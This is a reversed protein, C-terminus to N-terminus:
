ASPLTLGHAIDLASVNAVAAAMGDPCLHGYRETVVQTAHGMLGAVTYLPTGAQVLWSAYTHRLTHAVVMQRRDGIGQNLALFDVARNFTESMQTRRKGSRGPFVLKGPELEVEALAEAATRTLVAHRSLGGKPNRVTLRHAGLNVDQGELAFIEGCRLGTHLSLICIRWTTRSRRLIEALLAHAEAQTLWRLRANDPRPRDVATVPNFGDFLRRRAAFRYLRGVFNVAHLITQPALGRDQLEAQMVDLDEPQIAVLRRTKMAAPVHLRWVRRWAAAQAPKLTTLTSDDYAQMVAELTPAKGPVARGHRMDRLREARLKHAYAATFGDSAWGVTEWIKRGDATKYTFCFSVDPKGGHRRTTSKTAYVGTFRTAERSM